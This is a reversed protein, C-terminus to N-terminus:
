VVSVISKLFPKLTEDIRKKDIIKTFLGTIWKIVLLGVVLVVLAFVISKIIPLAINLFHEM